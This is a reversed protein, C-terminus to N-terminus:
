QDDDVSREIEKRCMEAVAALCCLVIFSVIGFIVLDWWFM